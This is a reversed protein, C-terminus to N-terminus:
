SEVYHRGKKRGEMQFTPFFSSVINFPLHRGLDMNILCIRSFHHNRIKISLWASNVSFARANFSQWLPALEFPWAAPLSIPNDSSACLDFKEFACFKCLIHVARAVSKLIARCRFGVLSYNQLWFHLDWWAAYAGIMFYSISQEGVGFRIECLPAPITHM